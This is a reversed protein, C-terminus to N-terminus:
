TTAAPAAEVPERDTRHRWLAPILRVIIALSVLCGLGGTVVAFMANTWAAVVGSEVAGLQNSAALFVQNVSSVRGRLADPTSLQIISQRMVVSVQDAAGTIAYLALSLPFWTSLGFAMTGLGFIAVTVVMVRGTALVPPRMALVLAAGFAGVARSANLLGYGQAGVDLIDSAYIPLLANAGAFIVSFLDLVMSGLVAPQDRLYLFGDKIMQVSLTSRQSGGAAVRICALAALGLLMMAVHCLYAPAIGATALLYGAIVPGVVGGLQQLTTSIAVARQFLARTVVQPLLSHRAPEGFASAVGLLASSVYILPLADAGAATVAWLLLSTLVPATQAAGLVLRRDATDAVAGGIFSMAFSPVFRALAVAALPLPSGTLEYVQWTMAAIQVANGVQFAVRMATYFGFAPQRLLTLLSTDSGDAPRDPSV